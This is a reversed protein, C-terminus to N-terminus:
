SDIKSNRISIYRLGVRYMALAKVQWETRHNRIAFTGTVPSGHSTGEPLNRISFIAMSPPPIHAGLPERSHACALEALALLRLSNHHSWCRSARLAALRGPEPFRDM